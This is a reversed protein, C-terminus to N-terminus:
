QLNLETVTAASLRGNAVGILADKLMILNNLRAMDGSTRANRLRLTMERAVVELQADSLKGVDQILAQMLNLDFPLEKELLISLRTGDPDNMAAALLGRQVNFIVASAMDAPLMPVKEIVANMMAMYATFGQLLHQNFPTSSIFNVVDPTLFPSNLASSLKAYDDSWKNRVAFQLEEFSQPPAEEPIPTPEQIIPETIPTEVQLSSSQDIPNVSGVPSQDVETAVSQYSQNELNPASVVESVPVTPPTYNEVPSSVGESMLPEPAAPTEMSMIPEPEPSSMNESVPVTPPTYNEVPSSVGESMLPEPAAPTEMSMIPEPEPSSMNESVPVTPPTYNEVPSSVGESMLPEPAAPTEMSMIPEPEPSSMNESVPVAPPTYNEAPSSFGESMLPEPEVPREMSIIPAVPKDDDLFRPLEPKVATEAPKQIPPAIVPEVPPSVVPAVPPQEVPIPAAVEAKPTPLVPPEEIVVETLEAYREEQNDRSAGVKLAISGAAFQLMSKADFGEKGTATLAPFLNRARQWALILNYVGTVGHVDALKQKDFTEAIKKISAGDSMNAMKLTELRSRVSEVWSKTSEDMFPMAGLIEKAANAADRYFIDAKRRVRYETADVHGVLMIRKSARGKERLTREREISVSKYASDAYYLRDPNVVELAERETQGKQLEAVIRLREEDLLSQKELSEVNTKSM